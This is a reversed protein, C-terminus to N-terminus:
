NTRQPREDEPRFLSCGSIDIEILPAYDDTVEQIDRLIGCVNRHVCKLCITDPSM